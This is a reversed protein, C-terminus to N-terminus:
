AIKIKGSEREYLYVSDSLREEPAVQTRNVEKVIEALGEPNGADAPLLLIEHVSSPLIYLDSGLEAALGSFEESFLMAAAGGLRLRNTAVYMEMCGCGGDIATGMLEGLVEKIGQIRTEGNRKHNARAAEWLEGGGIGWAEMHANQIRVEAAGGGEMEATYSYVAALDLFRKHPMGKLLEKNDGYHILRVSIKERARKWFLFEEAAFPADGMRGQYEDWVEEATELFSQGGRLKEYHSELYIVPSVGAKARREFLATRKMSNNKIVERVAAKGGGMRKEMEKKMKETFEKFEM